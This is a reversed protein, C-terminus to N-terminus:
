FINSARLKSLRLYGELNVGVVTSFDADSYDVFAKPLFVGANNVLTDVRDFADIAAEIIRTATDPESIDGPVTPLDSRGSLKITRSNALVRYGRDLFRKVLDAGIGQSAKTIVVVKQEPRAASKRGPCASSCM